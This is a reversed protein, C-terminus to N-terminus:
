LEGRQRVQLEYAPHHQVPYRAPARRPRRVSASSTGTQVIPVGIPTGSLPGSQQINTDEDNHSWRLGGTLDLQNAITYTLNGFFAYEQYHGRSESLSLEAFHVGPALFGQITSGADADEKTYFGGVIWSWPGEGSSTARLEESFKDYNGHQPGTFGNGGLFGPPLAPTFDFLAKSHILGYSTTSAITFDSLAWSATADVLRYHTSWDENVFRSQEYPGFLPALTTLNLDNSGLAAVNSDQVLGNVVIKFNDTPTYALTARLGKTDNSNANKSNTAINDVYGPDLRAFGSVRLALDDSLPINIAARTSYGMGGGDISSAGVQVTVGFSDTTPQKTIYKILGGLTSAGYLTGQPGKLVEIQELDFPDLDPQLLSSFGGFPISFSYPADNVYFGVTPSIQQSGSTIGRLIVQNFGTNGRGFFSMGPVLKAWDTMSNLGQDQLAQPSIVDVAGAVDLVSQARKNATVVVTEINTVGGNDSTVADAAFAASNACIAILSSGLLAFKKAAFAM